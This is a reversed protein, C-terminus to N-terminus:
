CRPSVPEHPEPGGPSRRPTFSHECAIEKLRTLLAYQVQREKAEISSLGLAAALAEPTAAVIPKLKPM